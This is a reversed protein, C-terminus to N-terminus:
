EVGMENLMPILSDRFWDKAVSYKWEFDSISKDRTYRGPLWDFIIREVYDVRIGRRLWDAAGTSVFAAYFYGPSHGVEQVVLWEANSLHTKAVEGDEPLWGLHSVTDNKLLAVHRVPLPKGAAISMYRQSQRASVSLHEAVWPLFKGHPLSAKVHLLLEGARKAHEVAQGAHTVAKAHEVNIEAAADLLTIPYNKSAM